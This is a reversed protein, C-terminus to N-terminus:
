PCGLLAVVCRGFNDNIDPNSSRLIGELAWTEGDRSYVYVAGSGQTGNADGDEDYNDLILDHGVSGSPDYDEQITDLPGLDEDWNQSPGSDQLAAEAQM